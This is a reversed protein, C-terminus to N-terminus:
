KNFVVFWKSDAKRELNLAHPARQECMFNHILMKRNEAQNPAPEEVCMWIFCWVHMNARFEWVSDGDTHEFLLYCIARAYDASPLASPWIEVHGFAGVIIAARGFARLFYLRFFFIWERPKRECVSTPIYHFIIGMTRSFGALKM